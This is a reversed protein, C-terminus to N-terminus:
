GETMRMLADAAQVLCKAILQFLVAGRGPRYHNKMASKQAEEIENPILTKTREVLQSIPRNFERAFFGICLTHMTGRCSFSLLGLNMTM